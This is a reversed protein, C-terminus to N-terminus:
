RELVKLAHELLNLKQAMMEQPQTAEATVRVGYLIKAGDGAGAAAMSASIQTEGNENFVRANYPFEHTRFKRWVAILNRTEQNEKMVVGAFDRVVADGDRYFAFNVRLITEKTLNLLRPTVELECRRSKFWVRRDPDIEPNLSEFVKAQLKKQNLYTQWQALTAEMTVYVYDLLVQSHRTLLDSFGTPAAFFVGATSEPTPMSIVTLMADEYPIAWARTQWLRGYSDTYSTEKSAKGLSTVRVSDSGIARHLAYAKLVIDMCRKSDSSIVSMDEDDPARLRLIGSDLEVYGNHELQVSHYDPTTMARIGNQGEHLYVPVRAERHSQLVRESGAGRPFLHAANETLLQATSRQMTKAAIDIVTQYFDALPKPLPFREGILTTVAAEMIPLEFHSRSSMRGEGEKAGSVQLISLAYKLNESPSKALVVGLVRGHQDVLPGGSNGPSAAASFRLWNWKGDQDEPTDSTYVGDRIVVGQGLANGVAFVPENAIPKPGVKLYHADKPQERLAPPGFQSGLGPMLVHQATVYRNPSIAFATGVSRYKDTRQQCPMLDM